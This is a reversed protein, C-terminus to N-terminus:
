FGVDIPRKGPKGTPKPEPATGKAPPSAKEFSPRRDQTKIGGPRKAPPPPKTRATVSASAVPGAPGTTALTTSENGTPQLVVETQGSTTPIPEGAASLRKKLWWAGTGLVVVGALGFAVLLLPFLAGHRPVGRPVTM